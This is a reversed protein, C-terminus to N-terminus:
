ADHTLEPATFFQSSFLIDIEQAAAQIYQASRISVADNNSLWHEFLGILERIAPVDINARRAIEHLRYLAQIDEGPIRPLHWQGQKLQAKPYPVASFNFYRGHQDPVSFPDILIACYRVYILYEQETLSLTCFQEIKQRAITEPRVPYNDDNLFQLLNIPKGGFYSVIASIDRWLAVYRRIIEPTIPGEPFLKYLFVPTKPPQLIVNLSFNNIFLAPHVYTTINRAEVSFGDSLPEASVGINELRTQWIALAPDNHLSSSLYIKRKRAKTLVQTPILHGTESHQCKTAAFYTSCGLVHLSLGKSQRWNCLIQQSGFAPSLLIIRKLQTLVTEPLLELAALYANSPVVLILTHWIPCVSAPDPEIRDLRAQGALASLAPKAVDCQIQGREAYDRQWRQWNESARNTIGLLIHNSQKLWVALQMAAPGAGFLLINETETTM